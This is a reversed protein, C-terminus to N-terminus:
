SKLEQEKAEFDELLTNYKQKIDENEQKCKQLNCSYEDIMSHLAKCREELSELNM